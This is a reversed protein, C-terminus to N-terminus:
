LEVGFAKCVRAASAAGDEHFGFGWYAGCYSTRGAAIVEAHRAQAAATRVTYLPHAYRYRGLVKREDITGADNITVFLEPPAPLSQLRSMAYTLTVVGLPDRPVCYNWAAWARRRRPMVGEDTHLTAVNHQYDFAALVNRETESPDTVIRRVQDGHCALVVHDFDERDGSETEVRVRDGRSVSRVPSSLAVTADWRAAMADIYARSGGVVTRWEPQGSWRLMGHNHLFQTLFQVPFDEFREGPCSWIASGLPRLYEDVFRDSFGRGSLFARLTVDALEPGRSQEALRNFRAIDALMRLYSPRLANRRQAFLSDLTTVAYEVGSRESKVGFTMPAVRYAVELEDILRHFTPYTRDNFVIFGTDVPVTRGGGVDADVTHAHGGLRARAEYLTVDYRRSLLYASLLGAIGAGVVAM